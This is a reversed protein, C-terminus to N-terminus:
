NAKNENSEEMWEPKEGRSLNYRKGTLVDTAWVDETQEVISSDPIEPTNRKMAGSHGVALCALIVVVMAACAGFLEKTKDWKTM